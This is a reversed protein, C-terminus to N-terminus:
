ELRSLGSQVLDILEQRDYVGTKRYISSIHHKATSEAISLADKIYPTSRGEALLRFVETERPTLGYSKAIAACQAEISDIVREKPKAQYLKMLDAMTFVLGGAITIIIACTLMTVDIHITTFLGNSTLLYYLASSATTGLRMCFLCVGFCRAVPKKARFAIDASAIITLMDVGYIAFLAMGNGVFMLSPTLLAVLIFGIVFAPVIPRFLSFVEIPPQTVAIHALLTIVLVGAVALSQHMIGPPMDPTANLCSQAFGHTAGVIFLVAAIEWSSFPAIDYDSRSPSRRPENQLVYLLASSILPSLGTLFGGLAAPMATVAFYLVFAFAFSLYLCRGVRGTTLTAWREGWMIVLLANGASFVAACLSYIALGGPWPIWIFSTLAISGAMGLGGALVFSIKHSSLAGVRDSLLAAIGYGTTTLLTVIFFPNFLADNVTRSPLVVDSCMALMWWAQWFSFGLLRLSLGRESAGNEGRIAGM